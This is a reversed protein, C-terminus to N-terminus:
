RASLMTQVMNALEADSARVKPHKRGAKLDAIIRAQADKVNQYKTAIDKMSPGTKKQEAAHCAVCGKVKLLDAGQEAVANGALIPLALALAGLPIKM